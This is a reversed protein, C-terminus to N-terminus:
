FSAILGVRANRGPMPYGPNYQYNADFINNVAVYFEGKKGLSPIPYSIRANAVTFSNVYQNVVSADRDLSLANMGSQHQADMVLRVPGITGSVGVTLATKPIYPQTDVSSNLLTVGGFVKWNTALEQKVSLELGNLNYNSYSNSFSGSYPGTPATWVYRNSVDDKFLSVDIQTNASPTFKVGVEKHKNTSPSLQNWNSNAAFMFPIAQALAYTEMGPYLIGESYNAYVTVNESVFSLGAHPAAKSPYNNADYYRVGASPVAVWSNGLEVTQSVSVYPSTTSFSPLNATGNTAATWPAGGGVWPGSIDGQVRDYDIGAVVKGGKWPSFAEKWRVGSLHFNTNFNGWTGDNVLNNKGQNDYVKVAGTWDDHIHSVSVNFMHASSQDRAAPSSFKPDGAENSVALFGVGLSWNQNLKLGVRAMANQLNADSNAVHGNSQIRGAAVMFDLNDQRGLLNGQTVVTGFSGAAVNAEGHVGDETARKTELNISPFNNGSVQPQPSKYIDITQMGNIPLLDLLPHNWVGMYVPIDDIYTKIESGPRSAGMGRIYIAGGQNGNYSGVEDYRSIQVGPTMRLASTLDLASLDKIQSETVKTSFSSFADINNSEIIPSGTIVVTPLQKVEATQALAGAAVMMAALAVQTYAHKKMENGKIEKSNTSRHRKQM